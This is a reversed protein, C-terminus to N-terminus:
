LHGIAFSRFLLLFAVCTLPRHMKPLQMGGKPDLQMELGLLLVSSCSSSARPTNPTHSHTRARNNRSLLM